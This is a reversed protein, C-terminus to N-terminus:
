YKFEVIVEAQIQLEGNMITTDLSDAEAMKPAMATTLYPVAFSSQEKISIPNITVVGIGKGMAAAKVKADAVALELAKAYLGSEDSLGFRIGSINNGGAKVVQDLVKGSQQIATIKVELQHNVTYGLLKQESVGEKWEYNPQISFNTTKIQDEKIGLQKLAALIANTNKSTEQQALEVTAKTSIVGISVWAVDPTTTITAKGNATIIGGGTSTDAMAPMSLFQGMLLTSAVVAALIILGIKKM